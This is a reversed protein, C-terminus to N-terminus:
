RAAGIWFGDRYVEPNQELKGHPWEVGGVSLRQCRSGRGALPAVVCLRSDAVCGSVRAAAGTRPSRIAVFPVGAQARRAPFVVAVRFNRRWVPVPVIDASGAQSVSRAPSRGTYVCAWDSTVPKAVSRVFRGTLPHAHATDFAATMLEEPWSSPAAPVAVSQTSTFPLLAALAFAVWVWAAVSITLQVSSLARVEPVALAVALV